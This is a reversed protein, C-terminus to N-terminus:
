VVTLSVTKSRLTRTGKRIRVTVRCTGKARRVVTSGSVRCVRASSSSVALAVTQGAGRTLGACKLLATTSATRRAATLKTSCSSGTVPAPAATSTTTSTRTFTGVSSFVYNMTVAVSSAMKRASFSSVGQAAVDAKVICQGAKTPVIENADIICAQDAAKLKSEDLSLTPKAAASTCGAFVTYELMNAATVPVADDVVLAWDDVERVYRWKEKNERIGYLNGKYPGVKSASFYIPALREGVISEYRWPYTGTAFLSKVNGDTGLVGFHFARPSPALVVEGTPCAGPAVFDLTATTDPKGTGSITYVLRYSRGATLGTIDRLLSTGLVGSGCAPVSALLPLVSSLDESKAQVDNEYLVYKISSYGSLSFASYSGNVAAITDGTRFNSCLDAKTIKSGDIARFQVELAPRSTRARYWDAPDTWGTVANSATSWGNAGNVLDNPVQVTVARKGFRQAISIQTNIMRHLSYGETDSLYNGTYVECDNGECVRVPLTGMQPISTNEQGPGIYVYVGLTGNEGNLVIPPVESRSPAAGAPAATVALGLVALVVLFRTYKM